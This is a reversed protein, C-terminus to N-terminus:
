AKVRRRVLTSICAALWALVAVLGAGAALRRASMRERVGRRLRTWRYALENLFTVFLSM